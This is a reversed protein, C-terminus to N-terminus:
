GIHCHSLWGELDEPRLTPSTAFNFGGITLAVLGPGRPAIELGFLDFM